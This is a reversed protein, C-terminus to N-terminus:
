YFFVGPQYQQELGLSEVHKKDNRTNHVWYKWAFFGILINITAFAGVVIYDGEFIEQWFILFFCFLDSLLHFFGRKTLFIYRFFRGILHM